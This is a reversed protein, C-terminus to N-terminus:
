KTPTKFGWAKDMAKILKSAPDIFDLGETWAFSNVTTRGPLPYVLQATFYLEYADSLKYVNRTPLHEVLLGMKFTEKTVYM